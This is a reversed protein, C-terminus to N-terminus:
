RSQMALTSIVEIFPVFNISMVGGILHILGKSFNGQQANPEAVHAIIFWGRIFAIFGVFQIFMVITNILDAWELGIGIGLDVYQMLEVGGKEDFNINNQVRLEGGAAGDLLITDASGGTGFINNFSNTFISSSFMNTTSPIYILTTGILIYIFPSAIGNPRQMQNQMQGLNHLTWAGHMFFWVGCIFCIALILKTLPPFIARINRLVGHLDKNELLAALTQPPYAILILLIILLLTKPLINKTNIIFPNNFQLSNKMIQMDNNYHIEILLEQKNFLYGRYNM